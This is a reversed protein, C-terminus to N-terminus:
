RLTVLRREQSIRLWQCRKRKLSQNSIAEPCNRQATVATSNYSLFFVVVFQVLYLPLFRGLISKMLLACITAVTVLHGIISDLFRNLRVVISRFVQSAKFLRCFVVMGYCILLIM